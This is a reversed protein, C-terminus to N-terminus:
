VQDNIHNCRGAARINFSRNSQERREDITVDIGFLIFFSEQKEPIAM